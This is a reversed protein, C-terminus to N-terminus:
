RTAFNARSTIGYINMLVGFRWPKLGLSSAREEEKKRDKNSEQDSSEAEAQLEAKRDIQSKVKPPLAGFIKGALEIKKKLLDTVLEQTEYHAYSKSGKEPRTAVERELANIEKALDKNSVLITTMQPGLDPTLLSASEPYARKFEELIAKAFRVKFRRAVYSNRAAFVFLVAVLAAIAYTMDM